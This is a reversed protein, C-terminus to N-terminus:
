LRCSRQHLRVHLAQDTLVHDHQSRTASEARHDSLSSGRFAGAGQSDRPAAEPEVFEGPIGAVDIDEFEISRLLAGRLPHEAVANRGQEHDAAPGPRVCGRDM